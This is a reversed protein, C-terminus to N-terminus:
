TNFGVVSEPAVHQLRECLRLHAQRDRLTEPEVLRSTHTQKYTDAQRGTRGEKRTEKGRLRQGAVSAGAAHGAGSRVCTMDGKVGNVKEGEEEM